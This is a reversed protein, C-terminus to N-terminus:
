GIEGKGSSQCSAESDIPDWSDQCGQHEQGLPIEVHYTPITMYCTHDAMSTFESISHFFNIPSHIMTQVNTHVGGWGIIGGM